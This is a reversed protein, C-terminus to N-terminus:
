AGTEAAPTEPAARLRALRRWAEAILTVGGVLGWGVLLASLEPPRAPAEVTTPALVLLVGLMLEFGGLLCSELMRLRHETGPTDFGGVIRTWGTLLAFMGLVQAATDYSVARGLLFRGLAVLGTVVGLVGALGPLVAQRDYALWWRLTVAGSAFIYLGIFNGLMRGAAEGGLAVILALGLALLGRLLTVVALAKAAQRQRM